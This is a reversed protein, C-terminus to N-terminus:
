HKFNRFFVVEDVYEGQEGRKIMALYEALQKPTKAAMERYREEATTRKEVMQQFTEDFDVESQRFREDVSMERVFLRRRYLRQLQRFGNRIAEFRRRQLVARWKAQFVVAAALREQEEQQRESESAFVLALRSLERDEVMTSCKALVDQKIFFTAFLHDPL